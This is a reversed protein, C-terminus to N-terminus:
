RQGASGDLTTLTFAPAPGGADAAFASAAIVVAALACRRFIKATVSQM